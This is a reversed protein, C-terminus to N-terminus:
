RRKRNLSQSSTCDTSKICFIVIVKSLSCSSLFLFIRHYKDDQNGLIMSICHTGSFIIFCFTPLTPNYNELTSGVSFDTYIKEVMPCWNQVNDDQNGLIMSICHTGSFIIFCFTPLTPNYNKLTLGVSFDTYIKEEM